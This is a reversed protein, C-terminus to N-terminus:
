AFGYTMRFARMSPSLDISYNFHVPVDIYMEEAKSSAGINIGFITTSASSKSTIYSYYAGVSIGFGTGESILYEAGAYFGNSNFSDSFDGESFKFTDNLYGAGVSLQAFANTGALMMAGCFIISLIKKM